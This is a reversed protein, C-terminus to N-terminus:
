STLYLVERQPYWPVIQIPIRKTELICLLNVRAIYEELAGEVINHMTAIAISRNGSSQVTEEVQGEVFTCIFDIDEKSFTVLARYASKSVAAVVKQIDFPEKTNDKKIIVVDEVM